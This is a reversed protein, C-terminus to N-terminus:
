VRSRPRPGLTEARTKKPVRNAPSDAPPQSIRAAHPDNRTAATEREAHEQKQRPKLKSRPAACPWALSTPMLFFSADRPIRAQGKLHHATCSEFRHRESEYDSGRDLQPLPAACSIYDCWPPHTDLLFQFKKRGAPPFKQKGLYCVMRISLFVDLHRMKHHVTTLRNISCQPRDAYCASQVM